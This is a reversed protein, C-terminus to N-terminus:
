SSVCSILLAVGKPVKNVTVNWAEHGEAAPKEPKAWEELNKAAFLARQAMPAIETMLIELLPKGLDEALAAAIADKNQAVLGALQQLQERRYDM